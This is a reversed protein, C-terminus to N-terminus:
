EPAIAEPLMVEHEMVAEAAVEYGEGGDEICPIACDGGWLVGGSWFQNKVGSSCMGKCDEGQSYQCASVQGQSQWTNLVIDYEKHYFIYQPNCLGEIYCKETGEIGSWAVRDTATYQVSYTGIAADGNAGEFFHVPPTTNEPDIWGSNINVQSTRDSSDRAYTRFEENGGGHTSFYARCYEKNSWIIDDGLFVELIEGLVNQLASAGVRSAVYVGLLGFVHFLRREHSPGDLGTLNTYTSPTVPIATASNLLALTDAHHAQLQALREPDTVQRGALARGPSAAALPLLTVFLTSLKM